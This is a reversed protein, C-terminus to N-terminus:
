ISVIIYVFLCLIVSNEKLIYLSGFLLIVVFLIIVVSGFCINLIIIFIILFLILIIELFNLIFKILYNGMIDVVGFYKLVGGILFVVIFFIFVKWNIEKLISFGVIKRLLLFFVCILM